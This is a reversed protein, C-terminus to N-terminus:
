YRDQPIMNLRLLKQLYNLSLLLASFLKEKLLNDSKIMHLISINDSKLKM